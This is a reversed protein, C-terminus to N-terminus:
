SRTAAWNVEFNRTAQVTKTAVDRITVKFVLTTNATTAPQKLWVQRGFERSTGLNYWTGAITPGTTVVKSATNEDATGSVIDFKIEYKAAETTAVPKGIYWNGANTNVVTTPAAGSGPNASITYINGDNRFGFGSLKLGANLSEVTTVSLIGGDMSITPSAAEPSFPQATSSAVTGNGFTPAGAHQDSTQFPLPKPFVRKTGNEYMEDDTILNWTVNITGTTAGGARVDIHFRLQGNSVIQGRLVLSSSGVTATALTVGASTCSSYGGETRAQTMAPLASNDMVYVADHTIRFRGFQACLNGFNTDATTKSASPTPRVILEIVQGAAFFRQQDVYTTDFNFNISQTVANTFMAGTANANFSVHESVSVIENFNKNVGSTGQVGKLMYRHLQAAALVNLTEQYLRSLTIQGVPRHQNILRRASPAASEMEENAAPNLNILFSPPTRGDQVFPLDSVDNVMDEPLELRNVAYKVAALLRDWDNSNVDVKFKSLLGPNHVVNTDPTSFNKWALQLSADLTNLAPLQIQTSRGLAGNGGFALTNGVLQSLLRMVYDYEERGAAVDVQPFIQEWGGIAGNVRTAPVQTITRLDVAQGFVTAATIGPATEDDQEAVQIVGIMFMDASPEFTRWTENTDYQWTGDLLQRAVFFVVGPQSSVLTGTRDWVIIGNDVAYRTCLTGRPVTVEAGNLFITGDADVLNGGSIGTIFAESFNQVTFTSYNIKAGLTTSIAPFYGATAANWDKEPYRGLGTYVYLKGSASGTREFWTDGLMPPTPAAEGINTVQTGNLSRWVLASPASATCVKLVNTSSDYWTQGVTSYEPATPGAFNELMLMMNEQQIKGYNAAGKGTFKIPAKDSVISGAPVSIPTQKQTFQLAPSRWILSYAM